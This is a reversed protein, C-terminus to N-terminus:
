KEKKFNFYGNSAILHSTSNEDKVIYNDSLLESDIEQAHNLFKLIVYYINKSDWRNFGAM